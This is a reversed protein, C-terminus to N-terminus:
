FDRAFIAITQVTYNGCEGVVGSPAAGGNCPYCNNEGAEGTVSGVGLLGSSSTVYSIMNGCWCDGSTGRNVTGFFIFSLSNCTTSCQRNVTSTYTAQFSPLAVGTPSTPSGSQVYCGLYAYPIPSASPGPPGLSFDSFPMTLSM